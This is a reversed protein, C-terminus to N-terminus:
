NVKKWLYSALGEITKINEDINVNNEKFINKIKMVFPLTLGIKEIEEKNKFVEEPTGNKFVKGDNLIIVRDSLYCEDIDHTISIFTLEKDEEKMKLILNRIEKVGEPDLMSTAEDFIIVKLNLALIGAIAVRQKQGGSLEEPQKTLYKEMGVKKAVDIVRKQMESKEVSRNELGFAIDDEVTSGIFQNDPNQFVIGIKNRIDKIHEENLLDGDIYIEGSNPELIYSLLKALTSKGSGNHGILTVYEGKEISFSVDNLIKNDKEYGFVLNKVEIIKEM